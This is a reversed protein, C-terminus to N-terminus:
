ASRYRLRLLPRAVLMGAILGGLPNILSLSLEVMGSGLMFVTQIVIWFAALAAVQAVRGYQRPVPLVHPVGYLTFYAGVLAFLGASADATVLFSNPTLALRAAAGGYAGAVFTAILGVPGISREVYRGAILVFITNFLAAAISSLLFQSVLPSLVARVPSTQWEGAVIDLPMFGYPMAAMAVVAVLQLLATVFIVAVLADTVRGRPLDIGTPLDIRSL